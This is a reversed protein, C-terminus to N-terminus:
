YDKGSANQIGEEEDLLESLERSAQEMEFDNKVKPYRYSVSRSANLLYRAAKSIKLAREEANSLKRLKESNFEEESEVFDSVYLANDLIRNLLSKKFRFRCTFGDNRTIAEVFSNIENRLESAIDTISRATKTSEMYYM